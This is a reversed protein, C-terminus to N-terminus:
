EPLADQLACLAAMTAKELGSLVGKNANLGNEIEAVIEAKTAQRPKKTPKPKGVYEFGESKAKAVVSRWSRGIEEGIAKAKELNLPQAAEIVAVMEDTYNPERDGNAKTKM